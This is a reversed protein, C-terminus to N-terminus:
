VSETKSFEDEVQWIPRPTVGEPIVYSASFRKISGEVDRGDDRLEVNRRCKEPNNEFYIWEIEADENYYHIFDLASERQDPECLFTDAIILTGTDEKLKKILLTLDRKPMSADDFFFVSPDAEAMKLGLHSKGSGPAGAMIICKM